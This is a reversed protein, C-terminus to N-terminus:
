ICGYIICRVNGMLHLMIDSEQVCTQHHSTFYPREPSNPLIVESKDGGGGVLYRYLRMCFLARNYYKSKEKDQFVLHSTNEGSAGGSSVSDSCTSGVEATVTKNSDHANKIAQM